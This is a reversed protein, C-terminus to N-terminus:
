EVAWFSAVKKTKNQLKKKKKINKLDSSYVKPFSYHIVASPVDAGHGLHSLWCSHLLM